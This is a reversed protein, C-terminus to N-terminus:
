YFLSLLTQTDQETAVRFTSPSPVCNKSDKYELMAEAIATEKDQAYVTNWGGSEFNFNWCKNKNLFNLENIKADLLTKLSETDTASAVDIANALAKISANIITETAIRSKTTELAKM